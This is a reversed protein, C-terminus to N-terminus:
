WLSPEPTLQVGSREKVGEQVERAFDLLARTSAGEHCVLALTHRSSLGVSGRRFGRNFGSHEILWAASLKIRGDAQPFQPMEQNGLRRAAEEAVASSVVPNVFFSGCSRANPDGDELVMSKSRRLALVTSRVEPLTPAKGLSTLARSLEPYRVSPEGGRRLAFTVESVVFRGPEKSKFRSDRYGFDCDSGDMEVFARTVSDFARLRRITEKVEQGYAGVNQVPTAGVLGPIGSLCELGALGSEVSFAVLGDWPEGAKASVLCFEGDNQCEVGRPEVAIVLGDLGEDPAVVNSGGGLVWTQVGRAHAWDFAAGLEADTTASTFWRAPGGLKLTTRPALTVGTQINM